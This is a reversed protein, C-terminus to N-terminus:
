EIVRKMYIHTKTISFIEWGDRGYDNITKELAFTNYMGIELVAYQYIKHKM